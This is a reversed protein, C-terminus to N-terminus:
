PKKHVVANFALSFAVLVAGVTGGVAVWHDTVEMQKASFVAVVVTALLGGLTTGIATWKANSNM